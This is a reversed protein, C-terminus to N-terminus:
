RITLPIPVAQILTPQQEGDESIRTPCTVHVWYRGPKLGEPPRVQRSRATPVAVEWEKRESPGLSVRVPAPEEGTNIKAIVFGHNNALINSDADWITVIVPPQEQMLTITIREPGRNTLSVTVEVPSGASVEQRSLRTTLALQRELDAACCTLGTLGLFLIMFTATTKMPREM